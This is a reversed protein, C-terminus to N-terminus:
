LGMDKVFPYKSDTHVYINLEDADLMTKEAQTANSLVPAEIGSVLLKNGTFVRAEDWDGSQIFSNLLVAGGEVILSQTGDEYLAQLLQERIDTSFDMQIYRINDEIAQKSSNLIWTEADKNFINYNKPLVLDKDLVIRLPNEGKWLRATLQPNDNKATNFGIVIADEETRWKHVLRNSKTNTIAFRSSDPPAIFGDQTQAWKLIIYPRKREHFCFFRRNLWLGAEELIGTTVEIGADKLIQIGNGAVKDNPDTNCIVVKKIGEAVIRNACPPTNGQHACPELSVYMTSEPILHKDAPHVSALCNVEAHAHGYREHWGEGIIRENHVLVAGVM